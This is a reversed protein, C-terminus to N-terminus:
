RPKGFTAGPIGPAPVSIQSNYSLAVCSRPPRLAGTGRKLLSSSRERGSHAAEVERQRVSLPLDLTVEAVQQPLRYCRDFPLDGLERASMAELAPHALPDCRWDEEDTAPSVPDFWRRGLTSLMSFSKM